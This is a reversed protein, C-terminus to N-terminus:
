HNGIKYNAGVRFVDSTLSISHLFLQAPVPFTGSDLLNNSTTQINGFDLHLYEAKLSWGNLLAYEAGGGITWGAKTKSMSAAETDAFVDVFLWNANVKTVALGGTAYFLWNSSAIGLRPRLTWLWDTSFSQLVTLTSPALSPIVATGSGSGNQKFSQFDTELGTVLNGMQWNFGAQAGGIFGSPTDRQAGTANFLNTTNPNIFYCQAPTCTTSTDANASSRFGGANLGAYFGTWNFVAAPPPAAFAASSCAISLVAASVVASLIQRV